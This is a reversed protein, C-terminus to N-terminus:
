GGVASRSSPPPLAVGVLIRVTATATNGDNDYATARIVFVSVTPVVLTYEYPATVDTAVVTFPTGSYPATAFEVKTVTGDPDNATAALRITGPEGYIVNGVPSTLAVVPPLGRTTGASTDPSTSATTGPSGVTGDCRVGNLTFVEPTPNSGAWRANFGIAVTAGSGWMANWNPNAASVQTGSQSWIANWGQILQQGASFPFGLVWGHVASGLNTIQILATFGGSWQSTVTYDVRCGTTAAGAPAVAPIVAVAVAIGAAALAASLRRRM